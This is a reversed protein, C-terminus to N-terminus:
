YNRLADLRPRNALLQNSALYLGTLGLTGGAVSLYDIWVTERGVEGAMTLLSAGIMLLNRTVLGWSLTQDGVQATLGGCGCDIERHGRLINIAVAATVTLLLAITLMAGVQRWDPLLLLAGAAAEWWPLLRALPAILSDPLLRYNEVAAAFLVPDRLKQWAGTLLIIALAAALSRQLVPDFLAPIAVM